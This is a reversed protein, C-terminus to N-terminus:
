EAAFRGHEDRLRGDDDRWYGAPLEVPPRIDTHAPMPGLRPDKMEGPVPEHLGKTYGQRRGILYGVAPGGTAIAMSWKRDSWPDVGTALYLLSLILVILTGGIVIVDDDRDPLLDPIQPIKM